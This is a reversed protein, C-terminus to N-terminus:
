ISRLKHKIKNYGKKQIKCYWKHLFGVLILAGNVIATPFDHVLAGYISWLLLNISLGVGQWRDEFLYGFLTIEVSALMPICGLWTRDLFLSLGVCSILVVTLWVRDFKGVAILINRLACLLLLVGSEVRGCLFSSVSLFVCQLFTFFFISKKTDLLCALTLCVNAVLSCLFWM